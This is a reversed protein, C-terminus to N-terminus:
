QETQSLRFIIKQRVRVNVAVGKVQAPKFRWRMVAAVVATRFLESPLRTCGVRVVRGSQDVLIELEAVGEVGERRAEPPYPVPTQVAVEPRVDTEDEGYVQAKVRNRDEVAVEAGGQVGLDPAFAFTEGSVRDATASARARVSRVAQAPATRRRPEPMPPEPTAKRDLLVTATEGSGSAKVNRLGPLTAFLVSTLALAAVFNGASRLAEAGRPKM